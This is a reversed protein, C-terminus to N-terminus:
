SGHGDFSLEVNREGDMSRVAEDDSGTFTTFVEEEWIKWVAKFDNCATTGASLRSAQLDVPILQETRIALRQRRRTEDDAPERLQFLHAPLDVFFKENLVM